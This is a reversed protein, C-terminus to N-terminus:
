NARNCRLFIPSRQSPYGSSNLGFDDNQGIGDVTFSNFKSNAGAISLQNDESVVALPNNRVIDKIDRNFAPSNEIMEQNFSSSSGVNSSAIVAGTVAIREVDNAQLQKNLQYTDGLQLFM